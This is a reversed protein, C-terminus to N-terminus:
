MVSSAVSISVPDASVRACMGGEQIDWEGDCDM